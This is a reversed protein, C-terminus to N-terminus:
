RSTTASFTSLGVPRMRHSNTAQKMSATPRVSAGFPALGYPVRWQEDVSANINRDGDRKM